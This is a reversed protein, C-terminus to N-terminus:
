YMTFSSYDHECNALYGKLTHGWVHLQLSPQAISSQYLSLNPKGDPPKIEYSSVGDDFDDDFVTRLDMNDWDCTGPPPNCTVGSELGSDFNNLHDLSEYLINDDSDSSMIRGILEKLKRGHETHHYENDNALRCEIVRGQADYKEVGHVRLFFPEINAMLEYHIGKATFRRILDTKDTYPFYLSICKNKICADASYRDLMEMACSFMDILNQDTQDPDM